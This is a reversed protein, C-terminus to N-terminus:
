EYYGRFVDSHASGKPPSSGGPIISRPGPERRARVGHPASIPAYPIVLKMGSRADWM